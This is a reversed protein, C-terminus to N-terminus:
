EPQYKSFLPALSPDLSLGRSLLQHGERNLKESESGPTTAARILLFVGQLATAKPHDPNLQLARKAAATGRELDPNQRHSLAWEAAIWCADARSSYIDADSSNLHEATQLHDLAAALARSPDENRSAKWRGEVLDVQALQLTFFYDEADLAIAKQLANRAERMPEEPSQHITVRYEALFTYANALNSYFNPRDANLAIAKKLADISENARPLPDRGKQQEYQALYIYSSSVNSWAMAYNPNLRIAQQYNKIAKQLSDTPDKGHLLEFAGKIDYIAGMNNWNNMVTKDIANAADYADIARQVNPLPDLGHNSEYEAMMYYVYGLDGLTNASRVLTASKELNAGAKQLLPRPDQGTDEGLLAQDEYSVGLMSYARYSAPNLKIAIESARIAEALLQDAPNGHNMQYEAYACAAQSRIIFPEPNEPDAKEALQTAQLVQAYPASAEGGQFYLIQSLRVVWVQGLGIYNEPDSAADEIAGRYKEEGLTFLRDSEKFDGANKKEQAMQFYVQAQLRLAEYLWPVARRAADAAQIADSHKAEFYFLRARAYESSEIEAGISQRLYQLAPQKYRVEANKVAEARQKESPNLRALYLERDYLDGYVLGLAYNTEPTKYGNQLARELSERAKEMEHLALYGRGLAYYGAGQYAKGMKMMQRIATMRNEVISKERQIDHLPLMYGFRMISDMRAVEHGFLQSARAQEAANWRTYLASGALALVIVLAAIAITFAARNKKIKKTMRDTFTAPKAQIPDGDLFRQLDDALSRASDYRHLPDKELCKMVITELDRPIDPVFSRIPKPDGTAISTLIATITPGEFPAHGTLIAYLTAGLSYVDSRRDLETSGSAQEPSMYPPTGVAFGASTIEVETETARALGFDMVYPHYGKERHEVMVNGPKIDRHILGLRHATHIGEAVDRIVAVKEEVTLTERLRDLTQGDIFQMAIYLKGQVEGEEYIKCVNEHDVRAQAQAERLFRQSLQPNNGHIFKLAIHRKLVPDFAKYVRAMGGSGLFQVFQYRSWNAVPFAKEQDARVQMSGSDVFTKEESFDIQATEEDKKEM